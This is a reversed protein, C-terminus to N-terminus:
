EEEYYIDTLLDKQSLYEPQSKTKKIHNYPPDAYPESWSVEKQFNTQLIQSYATKFDLYDKEILLKDKKRKLDHYKHLNDNYFLILMPALFFLIIVLSITKSLPYKYFLIEIKKHTYNSAKIKESTTSILAAKEQEMEAIIIEYYLVSKKEVGFHSIEAIHKQLNTEKIKYDDNTKTEFQKIKENKLDVVDADIMDKFLFLEIPISIFLAIFSVYLCASIKSFSIKSKLETNQLSTASFVIFIFKYINCLMWGIVLGLPIAVINHNTIHLTAAISGSYTFFIVLWVLIGMWTFTVKVSSPCQLALEHEVGIFNTLHRHLLAM